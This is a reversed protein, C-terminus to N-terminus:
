GRRGDILVIQEGKDRGAGEEDTVGCAVAPGIWGACILRESARARNKVQM